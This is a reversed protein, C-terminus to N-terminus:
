VRVRALYIAAPKENIRFNPRPLFEHQSYYSVLLAGDADSALGCYSTDGGSPLDQLVRTTAGDLEWLRTVYGGEPTRDRGAVIMRGDLELLAPAHIWHPLTRRAWVTYPPESELVHTTDLTGRVVALLRGDATRHLAGENGEGASFLTARQEWHLGDRSYLLRVGLVPEEAGADCGYATTWFGDAFRKPGWLWWGADAIRRPLEFHRGDRTWTAYSWTTVSSGAVRADDHGREEHHSGFFLLLREGDPVLKPDRDDLGTAVRARVQWTALDDSALVVVHGPPWPMHRHGHRFALYWTGKWRALDTGSCHEGDDFVKRVWELVAPEPEAGSRGRPDRAADAPADHLGGPGAVEHAERTPNPM